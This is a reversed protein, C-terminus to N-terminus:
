SRMEPVLSRSMATLGTELAELALDIGPDDRRDEILACAHRVTTRDRGFCIGVHTFPMGFAVHTLYMATQRALANARNGRFRDRLAPAPVGTASAAAAEVLRALAAQRLPDRSEIQCTNM